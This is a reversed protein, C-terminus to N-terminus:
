PLPVLNFKQAQFSRLVLLDNRVVDLLLEFKPLGDHPDTVRAEGKIAFGLVSVVQTSQLNM